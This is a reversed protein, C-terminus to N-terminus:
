PAKPPSVVGSAVAAEFAARHVNLETAFSYLDTKYTKTEDALTIVSQSIFSLLIDVSGEVSPEATVRNIVDQFNFNM